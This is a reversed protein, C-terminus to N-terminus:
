LPEGVLASDSKSVLHALISAVVASENCQRVEEIYVRSTFISTDRRIASLQISLPQYLLQYVAFDSVVPSWELCSGYLAEGEVELEFYLSQAANSTSVQALHVDLELAWHEAETYSFGVATPDVTPITSPIASPM